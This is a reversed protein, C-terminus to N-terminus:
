KILKNQLTKDLSFKGGGAIVSAVAVLVYLLHFQYGEGTQTGFWNIFFGQDLHYYGAGLLVIGLLAASVRTFAGLLLLIAGFFEIIIVLLGIFTPLGYHTELANLINSFDTIKQYGHPLIVIALAIRLITGALNNDTKLIKQLM